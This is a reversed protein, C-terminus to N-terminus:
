RLGDNDLKQALEDLLKIINNYEEDDMGLVVPKREPMNDDSMFIWCQGDIYKPNIQIDM